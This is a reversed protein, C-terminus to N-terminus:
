LVSYDMQQNEDLLLDVLSTLLHTKKEIIRYKIEELM